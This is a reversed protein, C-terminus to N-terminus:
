NIRGLGYMYHINSIGENTLEQRLKKLAKKHLFGLYNRNEM